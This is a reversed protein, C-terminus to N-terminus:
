FRVINYSIGIGNYPAMQLKGKPLAVGSGAQIGIGWRTPKRKVQIENTIYRTEPFVYISDLAPRYGSVWAEYDKGSYHKQEPPLMIISDDVIVISDLPAEITRDEIVIETFIDPFNYINTDRLYLTDTQTDIDKEGNTNMCSRPLLLGAVVGCVLLLLGTLANRM